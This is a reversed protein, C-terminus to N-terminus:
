AAVEGAAVAYEHYTYPTGDKAKAMASGFFKIALENGVVLQGTGRLAEFADRKTRTDGYVRWQEGGATDLVVLLTTTPGGEKPERVPVEAVEAIVGEIGEPHEREKAPKWVPVGSGAAKVGDSPDKLQDLLGM